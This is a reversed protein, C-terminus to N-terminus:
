VFGAMQVCGIRRGVLVLGKAIGQPQRVSEDDAFVNAQVAGVVKLLGQTIPLVVAKADVVANCQFQVLPDRKGSGDAVILEFAGIGFVQEKRVPKHSFLKKLTPTIKLSSNTKRNRHIVNAANAM